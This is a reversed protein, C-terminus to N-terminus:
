VGPDQPFSPYVIPHSGVCCCLLTHPDRPEREGSGRRRATAASGKRARPCSTQWCRSELSASRLPSLCVCSNLVGFGCCRREGLSGAGDRGSLGPGTKGNERKRRGEQRLSGAPSLPPAPPGPRREGGPAGGAAGEGQAHRGGCRGGAVAARCRAAM